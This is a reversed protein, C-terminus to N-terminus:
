KNAKIAWGTHPGEVLFRPGLNKKSYALRKGNSSIYNGNILDLEGYPDNVIYKLNDESRGVILIWHGGGSPSSVTGHHLIGIPVPIGKDLQSDVSDWGFDQKFTADVGYSKLAKLQVSADTTDGYKFVTTIYDDDNSISNPKLYKLLMACSSSFCTRLADKKNDRQSFYPVNLTREVSPKAPVTETPKPDNIIKFDNPWFWWVSDPQASLQIKYNREGPVMTISDWSHASGKPVFLKQEAALESSQKPERKLWSDRQAVISTSLLPHLPKTLFLSKEQNRRNKLGESPKGNVLTWRQFEAAVITKEAGDNLLKLLTSNKFASLGVNYTFSVLSDFENQNIRVTLCNRVGTEFYELDERLLIEAQSETITQNPGIEPGTTGYGITWVNAPCLYSTLRLGEFNKILSVGTPSINM